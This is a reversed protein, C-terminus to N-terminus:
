SRKPPRPIQRPPPTTRPPHVIPPPRRPPGYHPPYHRWGYHYYPEIIVSPGYYDYRYPGYYAGDYFTAYGGTACGGLFILGVLLAFLKLKMYIFIM